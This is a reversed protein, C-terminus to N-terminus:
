RRSTALRDAEKETPVIVDGAFALWRVTERGVIKTDFFEVSPQIRPRVQASM